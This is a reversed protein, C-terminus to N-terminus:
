REERPPLAALTERVAEIAEADSAGLTRARAAFRRAEDGLRRRAEGRPLAPPAEAVYTGEGRRVALVGAEVLGRYAKVVTLPNVRLAKAMERVSAVPEGPALGGRAVLHRVGEEIQKWIPVADSPDITLM